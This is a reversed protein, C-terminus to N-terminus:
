DRAAILCAIGARVLTIRNATGLRPHPHHMVLGREVAILLGAFLTLGTLAPLAGVAGGFVPVPVFAAALALARAFFPRAERMLVRSPPPLPTRISM